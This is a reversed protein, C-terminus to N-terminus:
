RLVTTQGDAAVEIERAGTPVSHTSAKGGPWRVQLQTPPERASMVQVASDQSWYGSGAHIERVPGHWQGCVLRLQAGIGHPNGSPGKLKLRLGPKARVNHFLKTEAGNQTVVLDVRGDGDYDCLAAGRQDGYVKVGSEQGAVPRLNGRGDGNLWLGRGADCRSSGPNVAFFNQSLFVDENGDGDMDGVCVAFAPALQAEFPLPRAEFHDGRNLFITTAVTNAEVVAVRKLKDGYIDKLSAQGYAAYTSFKERVFPLAAGLANLDREPVEVRMGADYYAEAIDVTGNDGLDGYYIKRPRERSARYKSNLGWNGAVVDLRGDGDFDGVTVGNWWGVYRDLGLEETVQTLQGRDNHFVRIPGWECALILEPYADGDLDGWVAGSVLGIQALRRTNERDLEWEGQRGRFLLSTASQPYKGPVVRGGVFLDLDGDGDVDGLAIPGTSSEQGPLGDDVTKGAPDYQRVCSGAAMGDEYNASGALIVPQGPTKNWGLIATEDRTVVEAFVGNTMRVFGGRGDNRYAAITGGKGTGIVLDEWGDGDLDHWAVGPGLQSLKKPLLPQREFDDYPEEHHVHQILGSADEFVPPSNTTRSEHNTTRSGSSTNPIQHDTIPAERSSPAQLKSSETASAEDIQYIRNARVGNIASRKGSRWKVEVRMENTLNGAAFVRISDDSSLYRGGCIMEQSQMSVAGGHLWIKAGIGRTNPPRGKLRVAVRPAGSENRYIGAAANLNNVVVDLDGDHDLDALAMGHSVGSHDFGWATGVEEFTLNRGNHLAVKPMQLRPFQLLKQPILDRRWPGMARIRAEADLDQTDFMHGTSCLLDEYGDLDVDIFIVSWTWESAELRAYHAVEAYTGDGRNLHLTNRDYQPRDDFVGPKSLYPDTAALQMMRRSHRLSLMDAVFIDDLGDRNLDAVDVAMSFTTTNRLALRPIARFKGHSENLWIRDPSHFDNCVYLDPTGDGNLDRFMASLGWDHPAKALPKGDEDLFAGETWPVEAFRGGSLNRYLLHPEGHELVRGDPMLELDERDQPRVMRRGGVNLLAMGTTRITTTRYNAVYLDLSGDGDIDALASTTAGYRRSLGSNVMESFVGHGDNLFLRTGAGIGNVLLDLDGDGDIDAFTAGTSFQRACAVGASATVNTFRWGGLNRYLANSGELGCLYIDCLGDGDVDGLAVGSGNLRIQNEAAKADSLVNTFDIGSEDPAVLSFGTHGQPNVSLERFRYGNAQQWTEEALLAHTPGCVMALCVLVSCIPKLPNRHGSRSCPDQRYCQKM